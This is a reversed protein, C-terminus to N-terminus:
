VIYFLFHNVYFHSFLQTSDHITVISFISTKRYHKKSLHTDVHRLCVEAITKYDSEIQMELKLSNQKQRNLEARFSINFVSFNVYFNSFKKNYIANLVM